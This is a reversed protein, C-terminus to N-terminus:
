ASRRQRWLLIVGFLLLLGVLWSGTGSQGQMTTLQVDTPPDSTPTPEITATATATPEATATATSTPPQSTPSPTASPTLTATPTNTPTGTPTNTPTSTPTSTPTNTPTSTATSTPTPTGGCNTTTSTNLEGPTICRPSLDVNNVDTDTGNPFRSIGNNTLTPDDVLGVGSGETYPAGTDGEYSVTDIIFDGSTFVIAVADPAGNQILDTNPSVDFDCNAVAAADGCVVFFQGGGLNVAPLTITLYITAGGGTGNIFALHFADLDNGFPSNNYIEIFEATDTGPQDYDMENIVFEALGANASPAAALIGMQQKLQALFLFVLIVLVPVIMFRRWNPLM